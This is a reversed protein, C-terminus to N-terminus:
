FRFQMGIGVVRGHGISVTHAEKSFPTKGYHIGIYEPRANTINQGFMYIDFQDFELGLRANLVHYDNLKLKNGVDGARAGIYQHQVLGFLDADNSLNLIEASTRYQLSVSSTFNPASSVRNGNKAKTLAAIDASINKIKARMLAASGLLDLGPMLRYGIELEAGYSETDISKPSLTFSKSDFVALQNDKVDNFFLSANLRMDGDLLLNKSGIEYAWSTSKDYPKDRKGTAANSTFNPFGGSRAGRSVSAYLSSTEALEYSLIIRGTILNFDLSGSQNFSPATGPFGNSRYSAKYKKEDRTYRLGTTFKLKEIGPAPATMEGFVAYSDNSYDNNRTGNTSAFLASKWFDDREFDDHYYALGGVWLIDAQDESSLRVEQYFSTQREDIDSYDTAPLYAKVPRSFVQSFTLGESNNTFGSYKYYNTATVSTLTVDSFDHSATLSMGALKRDVGGEPDAAVTPFGARGKLVFNSPRNDDRQGFLSLTIKTDLGPTFILSGRLSGTEVEGLDGTGPAINDVDGDVGSYSAALRGALTDGKLPGSVSAQGLRHQDAGFESRASFELQDGPQQTVINIAGAQTNRGFVTGQPGRMVEIREAGIISLDSGFLPQPVGDVYTVTSTDDYGIPMLLPGIGRISLFTSRGDGLSSFGVGPVERLASELNDIRREDLAQKGVVTTSIPVNQPDEEFKRATVKIPDLKIVPGDKLPAAETQAHAPDGLFQAVTLASFLLVTLCPQIYRCTNTMKSKFILRKM